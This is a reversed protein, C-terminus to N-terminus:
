PRLGHGMGREFLVGRLPRGEAEGEGTTRTAQAANVSGDGQLSSLGAERERGLGGTPAACPYSAEQRNRAIARRGVSYGYRVRTEAIEKVRKKLDAQDAHRGRHPLEIAGGSACRLSAQHQGAM